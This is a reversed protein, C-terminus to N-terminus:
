LMRLKLVLLGNLIICCLQELAGKQGVECSSGLVLGSARSYAGVHNHTICGKDIITMGSPTQNTCLIRDLKTVISQSEWSPTGSIHSKGM